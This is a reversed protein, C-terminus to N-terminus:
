SSRAAPAAGRPVEQPRRHQPAARRAQHGQRDDLRARPATEAADREGGEGVAAELRRFYTKIASTYRRNELREREARLIRKKQSHINAMTRPPATGDRGRRALATSYRGQCGAGFSRALFRGGGGGGVLPAPRGCCRSRRSQWRSRARRRGPRAFDDRGAEEAGPPGAEANVIAKWTGFRTAFRNALAASDAANTGTKVSSSWSPLRLLREPEGRGQEPDHQDREARDGGEEDEGAPVIMGSNMPEVNVCSSSSREGRAERLHQERDHQQEPQVAQEDPDQLGVVVERDGRDRRRDPVDHDDHQQDHQVRVEVGCSPM